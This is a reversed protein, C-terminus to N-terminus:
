NAIENIGVDHGAGSSHSGHAGIHQVYTNKSCLLKLGKQKYRECLEWDWNFPAKNPNIGRLDGANILSAFGGLTKKTHFDNNYEGTINHSKTNFLSLAGIGKDKEVLDRGARLFDLWGPLYIGDTEAMFIFPDKTHAYVSVLAHFSNLDCGVNEKTQVLHIGGCDPIAFSNLISITDPNTSADDFLWLVDEKNFPSAKLSELSQALYEPRNYTTLIFNM